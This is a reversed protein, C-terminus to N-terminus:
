HRWLIQFTAYYGVFHVAHEKASSAPIMKIGLFVLCWPALAATWVASLPLLSTNVKQGRCVPFQLMVELWFYVCLPCSQKSYSISRLMPSLTWLQFRSRFLSDFYNGGVAGPEKPFHFLYIWQIYNLFLPCLYKLIFWM